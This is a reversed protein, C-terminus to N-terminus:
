CGGGVIITTLGTPKGPVGTPKCYYTTSTGTTSLVEFDCSAENSDPSLAITGDTKQVEAWVVWFSLGTSPFVALSTGTTHMDCGKTTAHEQGATSSRGACYSIVTWGAPPTVANWRLHLPVQGAQGTQGFAHAKGLVFILELLIFILLAKVSLRTV